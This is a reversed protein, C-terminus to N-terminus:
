RSVNQFLFAASNWLRGIRVENPTLEGKNFQAVSFFPSSIRNIWSSTVFKGWGNSYTAFCCPREDKCDCLLSDDLKNIESLSELSFGAENFDRICVCDPPVVLLPKSAFSDLAHKIQGNIDTEKNFHFPINCKRPWVFLDEYKIKRNCTVFVKADPLNKSISYWCFFSMWDHHSLYDCAILINLGEGTSDIQM